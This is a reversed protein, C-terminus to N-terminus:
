RSFPQSVCSDYRFAAWFRRFRHIPLLTKSKCGSVKILRILANYVSISYTWKLRLKFVIGIKTWLMWKICIWCDGNSSRKMVTYLYYLDLNECKEAHINFPIWGSQLSCVDFAPTGLEVWPNTQWTPGATRHSDDQHERTNRWHLLSRTAGGRGHSNVSTLPPELRWTGFVLLSSESASISPSLSPPSPWPSIPSLSSNLTLLIFLDHSLNDTFVELRNVM